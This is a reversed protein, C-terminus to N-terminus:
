QQPQMADYSLLHFSDGYRPAVHDLQEVFKDYSPALKMLAVTVALHSKLDPHGIDRTLLRHHQHRRRGTDALRPNRVCLERRVGPAIREYVIDNTLHGFYQPRQQETYGVGRLRCLEKYYDDPFTKVWAALKKDIFQELILALANRERDYQFGTAEDVLAIMAVGVLADLMAHAAAALQGQSQRLVGARDAAIIAKCIMPFAACDYGHATRGGVKPRYEIPSNLLVILENSLFPKIAASALFPPPQPAGTRTSNTGTKKSGFARSVGRASLVRKGNDLVACAITTGPFLRIEGSCQERPGGWRAAAAVRASESREM